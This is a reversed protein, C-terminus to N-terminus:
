GETLPLVLVVCLGPGNDELELKGQHLHAVAEALSLGLGAGETSRSVDLRGFQRRAEARDAPAIGPGHDAVGIRLRTEERVAFLFIEKGSAGYKLANDLLNTLAQAILQRHGFLPLLAPGREVYLTCDAEEMIPEYMEGLEAVLEGPDLWAFQNRSAMAESRGIELVTTLIRMLSDAEKLVGGLLVDRRSENEARMAADIRARLRGVPSRLDHALCDTLLRLEEMLSSIRDLMNNIQRALRDFADDGGSLPVRQSFDGLTIRDAVAAVARVRTAVYRAILLGCTLGLLVSIALAVWLSGELTRQFQLREGFSRGTLLWEDKGLPRLMYGAEMPTVHNRLDLNGTRFGERLSSPAVMLRDVNGARALGRNDVIAALLQPDHSALTDFIAKDLAARGGSAYVDDLVAAEETVQQRLAAVADDATRWHIFGIVALNSALALLASFLAVRLSTPIRPM